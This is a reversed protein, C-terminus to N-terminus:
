EKRRRRQEAPTLIGHFVIHIVAQDQEAPSRQPRTFHNTFMTGYVLDSIVGVIQAPPLDQVRGARILDAFIAEWESANARRHELCTPTKRDRYEARECILLEAHGPHDRFFQLYARIGTELRDLPDAIEAYAARVFDRVQQMARDVAALFLEEKSPFYQYITGKAVGCVDAIEQVETGPYGRRAFVAGAADLIQETRRATLQEDRPRGRQPATRDM